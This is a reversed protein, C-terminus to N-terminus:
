EGLLVIGVPRAQRNDCQQELHEIVLDDISTNLNSALSHQPLPLSSTSQRSIKWTPSKNACLSKIYQQLLHSPLSSLPACARLTRLNRENM